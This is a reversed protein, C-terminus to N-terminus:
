NEKVIKQYLTSISNTLKLLYLGKEINTINIQMNNDEMKQIFVTQGQSNFLEIVYNDYKLNEINIINSTPNPYVPISSIFFTPVIDTITNKCCNSNYLLQEFYTANINTITQSTVINGTLLSLGVINNSGDVLYYIKNIPDITANPLILGTAVSSNSINTVVGTAPNIKALFISTPANKRALGYITTDSCNFLLQEFYTANINTIPQSTVINGTLLSLGVINNSGDVLYYIKNIPDITANPLILGSAVSSNSINTVVGTAPNIKALFISTPANKRALGYITTDSCNFLLQEFYTANINTIPQSTVINGTLLSLGVINNSGNVLYYIKNIPDITANPLILGSAVSSNSIKTIVGTAPNIKALFISTPANKRALGFIVSDVQCQGSYALNLIFIIYIYIRM